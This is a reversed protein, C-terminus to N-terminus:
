INKYINEMKINVHEMTFNEMNTSTIKIKNESKLNILKKEKINSIGKLLEENNNIKIIYGNVGDKVLDKSGRCDTVIVPLGAMLGEIVNVPLGERYSLSLLIDSIKLLKSVDERYGLLHINKDLNYEKIKKNYFDELEGIGVILLHINSYIKVLDRMAEIAMIQNKNKNLEGVQILVFDDDKLGLSKRLKHREDKSIEFNFNHEDVGVGHVLEINKAKFKKKAINYDEENITILTDTYRSLWKEIPYYILWNLIPAGKYFHFGHATYIVRANYKKRAKKAALRTVVGGMPTHCHIIEFKEEEIIKKLQKIARLNNIKIPSREFSVIHKKDCYPIEESGNTAVHVEYGQEKFYKLYPIHFHLIHSDVTATFLVKKM